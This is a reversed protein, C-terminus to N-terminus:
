FDEIDEEVDWSTSDVQAKMKELGSVKELLNAVNIADLIFQDGNQKYAEIIPKSCATCHEFARGHLILNQFHTLFGRIQHPLIGLDRSVPENAPVPGDAPAHQVLPHHLLSVMLEVAIASAIPALGPRTVTCQQDLTRDIVSQVFQNILASGIKLHSVNAPAVVDSCFYCGLRDERLCVKEDNPDTGGGHRMILYSDFVLAANILLKDYAACLLTPLWRSERTDTLLYVVDHEQILQRLKNINELVGPREADNIAHGPMPISMVHGTATANPYIKMLREAAATAKHKAAVCDSFEYLIQRVPNSYSVKGNDV